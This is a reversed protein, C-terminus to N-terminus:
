MGFGRMRIRVSRKSVQFIDALQGVVQIGDEVKVGSVLRLDSYGHAKLLEEAQPVFMSQPMLLAGAFTDAQWEAWERDTHAQKPNKKSWEGPDKEDSVYSYGAKRFEYDRHIGSYLCRHLVWHGIEHAETFRLRSPNSNLRADILMTGEPLEIPTFGSDERWVLFPQDRFSMMGLIRGDKTLTDTKLDIYLYERMLRLVDLPKADRLLEPFYLRLIEETIENIQVKSLIPLGSPSYTCNLKM